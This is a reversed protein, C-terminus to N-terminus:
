RAVSRANTSLVAVPDVSGFCVRAVSCFAKVELLWGADADRAVGGIRTYTTTFRAGTLFEFFNYLTERESFTYLFVTMAGVDMSYAGLGLLHALKPEAFTREEAELLHESLTADLKSRATTEDDDESIRARMRVM